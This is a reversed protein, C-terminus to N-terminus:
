AKMGVLWPHVEAILLGSAVAPDAAAFEGIETESLGAQPVMMGAAFGDLFPGGAFLKGAELLRRYHAVHEGLGPQEFM